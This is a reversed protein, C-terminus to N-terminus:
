SSYPSLSSGNLIHILILSNMLLTYGTSVRVKQFICLHPFTRSVDLRILDITVEQDGSDSNTMDEQSAMSGCESLSVLKDVSRLPVM